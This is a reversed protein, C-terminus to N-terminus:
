QGVRGTPRRRTPPNPTAALRHRAALLSWGATWLCFTLIFAAALTAGAAYISWPQWLVEPGGQRFLGDDLMWQEITSNPSAEKVAMGERTLGQDWRGLGIQFRHGGEGPPTVTTFNLLTVYLVLLVIAAVLLWEARRLLRAPNPSRASHTTRHFTTIMTALALASSLIPAAAGLLPPLISTFYTFAPLIAGMSAIYGQFSKFDAIFSKFSGKAM